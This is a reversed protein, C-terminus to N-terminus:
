KNNKFIISVEKYINKPLYMTDIYEKLKNMNIIDVVSHEWKEIFSSIDKKEWLELLLYAGIEEASGNFNSYIWDRIYEPYIEMEKKIDCNSIKLSQLYSVIKRTIKYELKIVSDELKILKLKKIIAVIEDDALYFAEKLREIAYKKPNSMGSPEIFNFIEDYNIERKKFELIFNVDSVEKDVLLMTSTNMIKKIEYSHTESIAYAKEEGVFKLPEHKGKIVYIDRKKYKM